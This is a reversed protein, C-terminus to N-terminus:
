RIKWYKEESGGRVATPLVVGITLTLAPECGGEIRLPSADRGLERPSRRRHEEKPNGEGAKENAAFAAKM